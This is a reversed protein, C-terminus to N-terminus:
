KARIDYAYLNSAHRIYLKGGCIVPYAWYPESSEKPLKFRNVQRFASPDKEILSMFGYQNMFYIMGGAVTLTGKGSDKACYKEEGTLFDVCYFGPNRDGTGYLLGDVLIIGGHHNDPRKSSWIKKVTFVDKEREIGLLSGGAGYGSSIYVKDEFVAPSAVNVDQFTSQPFKWLVEGTETDAGFVSKASMSVLQKKGGIIALVPSCCAAQEKLGTNIWKIKGTQKYFAVLSGKEGGPLCFLSDGEVVLSECYGFQGSGRGFSKILDNHWLEKGSVADFAALRGLASLHYVIGESYTPTARTGPISGNWPLGNPSSWLLKGYLDLAIVRTNKKDEGATFIRGGAIVVSSNGNLCEKSKWLLKPGEKPWKKLLGEEASINDRGPGRFSPWETQEASVLGRILTLVFCIQSVKKHM